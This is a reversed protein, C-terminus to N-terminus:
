PQLFSMHLEAHRLYYTAWQAPSLPGFFPHVAAPQAGPQRCRVIQARLQALGDDYAIADHWAVSEADSRLKLGPEFPHSLIRNKLLPGLWRLWSPALAPFGDFSCRM